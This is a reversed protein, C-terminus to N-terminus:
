RQLRKRAESFFTVVILLLASALLSAQPGALFSKDLRAAHVACVACVRVHETCTCLVGYFPLVHDKSTEKERRRATKRGSGARAPVEVGACLSLWSSMEPSRRIWPPPLQDGGWGM